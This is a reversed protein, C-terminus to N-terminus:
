ASDHHQMDTQMLNLNNKYFRVEIMIPTFTRLKAEETLPVVSGEWNLHMLFADSTEEGDELQSASLILQNPEEWWLSEIVLEHEPM